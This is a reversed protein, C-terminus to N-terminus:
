RGRGEYACRELGEDCRKCSPNRSFPWPQTTTVHSFVGRAAARLESPGPDRCDVNKGPLRTTPALNRGSRASCVFGCRTDPMAALQFPPWDRGADERIDLQAEAAGNLPRGDTM